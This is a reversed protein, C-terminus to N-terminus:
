LHKINIEFLSSKASPAQQQSWIMSWFDCVDKRFGYKVAANLNVVDTYARSVPDWQPRGKLTGTRAFKLLEDSIASALTVEQSTMNVAGNAFFYPIESGMFAGASSAEESPVFSPVHSFVYQYQRSGTQLTATHTLSLYSTGTCIYQYDSYVAVAAHYPSAYSEIPYFPSVLDVCGTSASCFQFLFNQFDQETQVSAVNIEISSEAATDGVVIDLPQSFEGLALAQQPAKPVVVGDVIPVWDGSAQAAVVQDYPALRACEITSCGLNALLVNGVAEAQDVTEQPSPNVAAGTMLVVRQFLGFSSPMVTQLSVCISGAAQGFLTVRSSDGGFKEINQKVWMLGLQQDLLGFNVARSNEALLDSHVLFGLAGLRYNITVVVAGKAALAAGDYYKTNIDGSDFSNGHIFVLVPHLSNPKFFKAPAWVNLNLCDESQAAGFDSIALDPFYQDGSPQPCAFGPTTVERVATWSDPSVPATWRLDDVPPKAFPIGLFERVLAHSLSHHGRVPGSTTPIVNTPIALCAAVALSALLLKM